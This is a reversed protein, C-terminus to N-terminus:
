YHVPPLGSRHQSRWKAYDFSWRYSQSYQKGGALWAYQVAGAFIQDGETVYTTDGTVQWLWAYAPAILLSTNATGDATSGPSNDYLFASASPVWYNQWLGDAAQKIVPPIRPDGTKEYYYTLAEMTLGVVFVPVYACAGQQTGFWGQIHGISYNVSTALLPSQPDGLQQVDILANIMYATERAVDCTPGGGSGAFASNYALTRVAQASLPNQTRQYDYLLGRSFVRWGSLAGVPWSAGGATALVWSRYADSVYTACTYWNSNKTFEAIQDFVRAGDYYWVNSESVVGGAGIAADIATQNCQQQGYVVMNSVWEAVDPIASSGATQKAQALGAQNCGVGLLIIVFARWFWSKCGGPKQCVSQIM